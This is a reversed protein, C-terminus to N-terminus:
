IAGTILDDEFQHRGKMNTPYHSTDPFDLTVIKKYVATILSSLRQVATDQLQTSVVIHELTGDYHLKPEIFDIVGTRVTGSYDPHTEILLKYFLLQNLYSEAKTSGDFSDFSKGTKLDTVTWSLGDQFANDIVGRIPVDQVRSIISLEIASGKQYRNNELYVQLNRKGQELFKQFDSADLQQSRLSEEFFNAIDVFEFSHEHNILECHHAVTNHMATGYGSSPTKRQPFQLLVNKYFYEPGGGFESDIALFTNLATVSLIYNDVKQKLARREPDNFIPKSWTNKWQILPHDQLSDQTNQHDIDVFPKNILPQFPEVVKGKHDSQPYSIILHDKARTAAVYFRRLADDKKNITDDSLNTPLALTSSNRSKLWVDDTCAPIFVYSFELGKAKHATMCQVGDTHAAFSDELPLNFKELSELYENFHKLTSHNMSRVKDYITKLGSLLELYEMEPTSDAFYYTKYPSIYKDTDQNNGIVADLIAEIPDTRSQLSLERIFIAIPKTEEKQALIEILSDSRKCNRFAEWVIERDIQWFPYSLIDALTEDDPKQQALSHLYKLLLFIVKTHPKELLNYGEDFSIPLNYTHLIASIDRLVARKPALIAIQYAPVHKHEILERIEAALWSYECLSNQHSFFSVPSHSIDVNM